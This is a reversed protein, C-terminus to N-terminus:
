KGELYAWGINRSDTSKIGLVDEQISTENLM